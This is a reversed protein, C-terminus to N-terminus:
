EDVEIGMAILARECSEIEKTLYTKAAAAVTKSFECYATQDFPLRTSRGDESFIRHRDQDGDAFFDIECLLYNKAEVMRVVELDREARTRFEVATSASGLHSLKM